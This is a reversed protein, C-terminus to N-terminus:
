GLSQSVTPHGPIQLFPTQSLKKIDWIIYNFKFLKKIDLLLLLFSLLGQALLKPLDTQTQGGSPRQCLPRLEPLSAGM